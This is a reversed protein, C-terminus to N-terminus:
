EGTEQKAGVGPTWTRAWPMAMLAALIFSFYAALLPFMFTGSSMFSSFNRCSNVIISLHEYMQAAAPTNKVLATGMGTSVVAFLTLALEWKASHSPFM